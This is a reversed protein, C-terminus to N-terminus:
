SVESLRELPSKIGKQPCGECPTLKDQCIGLSECNQLQDADQLYMQWFLLNTLCSVEDARAYALKAKNLRQWAFTVYLDSLLTKLTMQFGMLCLFCRCFFWKDM